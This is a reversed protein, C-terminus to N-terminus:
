ISKECVDGHASPFWIDSSGTDIQLQLFQLPTGVSVNVLYQVGAADKELVSQVVNRRQQLRSGCPYVSREKVLDFGVVKPSAAVGSSWLLLAAVGCLNFLARSMKDLFGTGNLTKLTNRRNLHVTEM